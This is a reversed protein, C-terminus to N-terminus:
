SYEWGLYLNRLLTLYGEPLFSIWTYYIFLFPISFLNFLSENFYPHVPVERTTWHNLSLAELAPPTPKIGWWPILIGCAVTHALFFFSTSFSSLITLKPVRWASHWYKWTSPCSSFPARGTFDQFQAPSPGRPRLVSGNLQCDPYVLLLHPSLFSQWIRM